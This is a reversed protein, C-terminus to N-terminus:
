YIGWKWLAYASFLLPVRFPLSLVFLLILAICSWMFMYLHNFTIFDILLGFLHVSLQRNVTNRGSLRGRYQFCSWDSLLSSQYQHNILRFSLRELAALQGVFINSETKAKFCLSLYKFFIVGLKRENSFKVM